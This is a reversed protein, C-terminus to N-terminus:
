LSERSFTIHPMYSLSGVLVRTSCTSLSLSKGSFSAPVQLVSEGSFSAPVQLVSEGSFSAHFMYSLCRM